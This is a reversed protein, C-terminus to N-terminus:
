DLEMGDRHRFFRDILWQADDRNFELWHSVLMDKFLSRCLMAAQTNFEHGLLHSIAEYTRKSRVFTAWILQTLPTANPIAAQGSIADNLRRGALFAPSDSGRM